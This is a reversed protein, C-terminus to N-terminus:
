GTATQTRQARMREFLEVRRQQLNAQFTPTEFPPTTMIYADENNDWYYKKRVAVIEFGHKAYLSQAVQNSTRVQLTAQQAGQRAGEELLSLLLLDGLGLGRWQPHVAITSIAAEDVLLWFGAYGLVPQPKARRLPRPLWGVRGGSGAAPHVVLMTSHENETIEFVYAREPWPVPFAVQEIEVVQSVDSLTMPEVRYASVEPM